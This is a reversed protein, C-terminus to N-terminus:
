LGTKNDYTGSYPATAKALLVIPPPLSSSVLLDLTLCPVHTVHCVYSSLPLSLIESVLFCFVTSYSNSFAVWRDRYNEPLQFAQFNYPLFTGVENPITTTTFHTAQFKPLSPCHINEKLLLWGPRDLLILFISFSPLHFLQNQLISVDGGMFKVIKNVCAEQFLMTWDICIAWLCM